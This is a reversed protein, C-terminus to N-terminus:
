TTTYKFGASNVTAVTWDGGPQEEEVDAIISAAATLTHPTATTLSSGNASLQTNATSMTGDGSSQFWACVGKVVSDSPLTGDLNGYGCGFNSPDTTSTTKDSGSIPAEDIVAFNDSGTSPAFGGSTFGGIDSDPRVAPIILNWTQTDIYDGTSTTAGTLYNISDDKTIGIHDVFTSGTKHSGWWRFQVTSSTGSYTQSTIYWATAAVGNVFLQAGLQRHSGNDKVTWVLALRVWTDGSIVISTTERWSNNLYLDLTGDVNWQIHCINQGAGTDDLEFLTRRNDSYGDGSWVGAEHRHSFVVRGGNGNAGDGCDLPIAATVISGNYTTYNTTELKMAYSGAYPASKGTPQHTQSTSKTDIAGRTETFTWPPQSTQWEAKSAAFEFGNIYVLSASM